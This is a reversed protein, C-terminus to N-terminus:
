LKPNLIHGLVKHSGIQDEQYEATKKTCSVLHMAHSYGEPNTKARDTVISVDMVAATTANWWTLGEPITLYSAYTSLRVPFSHVTAALAFSGRHVNLPM